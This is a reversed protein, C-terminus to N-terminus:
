SDLIELYYKEYVPIMNHAEFSDIAKQRANKSFTLLLSEDTLLNLASAAMQEVDGVPHLFGNQEHDVVEPLGGVLSGIIPTECSMAELAALGFSEESSPLLFLDACGLLNEIYDQAGLYLVDDLVGLREALDHSDQREPGEGM